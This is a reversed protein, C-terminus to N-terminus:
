IKKFLQALAYAEASEPRSSAPKVVRVVEYMQRLEQLLERDEGCRLFKILLAGGVVSTSKAFSVAAECLAMSRLQDTARHGTTNHLMDSLVVDVKRNESLHSIERRTEEVTFDGQIFDFAPDDVPEMSLLDVGIYQGGESFRLKSCVHLAWGGPASGLDVVLANRRIIKYKDDIERLKFVARSRLGQAFAEKAFPDKSQRSQWAKSNLALLRVPVRAHLKLLGM